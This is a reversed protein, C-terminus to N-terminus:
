DRSEPAELCLMKNQQCVSIRRNLALPRLVGLVHHIRHYGGASSDGRISASENVSITDGEETRERPFKVSM